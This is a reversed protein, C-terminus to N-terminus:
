HCGSCGSCDGGCSIEEEVTYPDEGNAANVLIQQMFNLVRDLENKTTNFAAMTPKEMIQSYLSRVEENLSALKDTDRDEKQIETSLSIKKLNFEGIMNQLEQDADAADKAAHYALYQDCQQVQAGLDRTLAIIDM